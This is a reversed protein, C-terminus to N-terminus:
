RLLLSKLHPQNVAPVPALAHLELPRIQLWAIATTPKGGVSGFIGGSQISGKLRHVKPGPCKISIWRSGCLCRVASLADLTPRLGSSNSLFFIAEYITGIHYPTRSGAPKVLRTCWASTERLWTICPLVRNAQEYYCVSVEGTYQLVRQTSCGGDRGIQLRWM